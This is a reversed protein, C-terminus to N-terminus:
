IEWIEWQGPGHWGVKKFKGHLFGRDRLEEFIDAPPWIKGASFLLGMNRLQDLISSLAKFDFEDISIIWVDEGAIRQEKAGMTILKQAIDPTVNEIRVAKDQILSIFNNPLQDQSNM